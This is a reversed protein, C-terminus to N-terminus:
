ALARAVEPTTRARPGPKSSLRRFIWWGRLGVVLLHILRTRLVAELKGSPWDELFDPEIRTTGTRVFPALAYGAASLLGYLMGTLAPDPTALRAKLDLRDLYLHRRSYRWLAQIRWHQEWLKTWIIGPSERTPKPKRRRKPKPRGLILSRRFVRVGLVRLSLERGQTSLQVTSGLWRLRVLVSQETLSAELRLNALLMAVILLGLIALIILVLGM